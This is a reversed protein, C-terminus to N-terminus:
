ITAEAAVGEHEALHDPIKEESYWFPLLHLGMTIVKENRELLWACVAMIDCFKSSGCLVIVKTKNM